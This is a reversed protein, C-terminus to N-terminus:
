KFIKRNLSNNKIKNLIMMLFVLSKWNFKLALVESDYYLHFGAKFLSLIFCAFELTNNIDLIGM